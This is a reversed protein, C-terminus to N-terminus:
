NYYGANQIQRFVSEKHGEDIVVHRHISDLQVCNCEGTPTSASVEYFSHIGDSENFVERSAIEFDRDVVWASQSSRRVLVPLLNEIESCQCARLDAPIPELNYPALAPFM